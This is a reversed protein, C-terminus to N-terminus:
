RNRITRLLRSSPNAKKQEFWEHIAGYDAPNENKFTSGCNPALYCTVMDVSIFIANRRSRQTPTWISPDLNFRDREYDDMERNPKSLPKRARATSTLKEAFSLGDPSSIVASALSQYSLWEADSENTLRSGQKAIEEVSPLFLKGNAPNFFPRSKPTSLEAYSGPNVIQSFAKDFVVTSEEDQESKPEPTASLSFGRFEREKEIEEATKPKRWQYRQIQRIGLDRVFIPGFRKLMQDMAGAIEPPVPERIKTKKSETSCIVTGTQQWTNYMSDFIEKSKAADTPGGDPHFLLKAAFEHSEKLKRIEAPFVDGKKSTSCEIVKQVFRMEPVENNDLNLNYRDNLYKEVALYKDFQSSLYPVLISAAVGASGITVGTRIRNRLTKGDVIELGLKKVSEVAEDLSYQAIYSKEVISLSERPREYVKQLIIELAMKDAPDLTKLGLTKQLNGFLWPCSRHDTKAQAIHSVTLNATLMIVLLLTKFNKM